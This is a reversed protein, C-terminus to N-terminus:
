WAAGMQSLKQLGWKHETTKFFVSAYKSSPTGVSKTLLGFVIKQPNSFASNYTPFNLSQDRNKGKMIFTQTNAKTSEILAAYDFSKAKKLICIDLGFM